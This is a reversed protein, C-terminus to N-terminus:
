ASMSLFPHQGSLPESIKILVLIIKSYNVSLVPGADQMWNKDEKASNAGESLNLWPNRTSKKEHLKVPGGNEL